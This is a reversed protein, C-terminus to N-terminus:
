WQVATGSMEADMERSERDEEELAWAIFELPAWMNDLM